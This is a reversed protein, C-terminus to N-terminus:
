GERRDYVCFAFDYAHRDDAQREVRSTERWRRPDLAEFEVDGDVEAQVETLYVRDALRLADRYVAAGGIVFAETEGAAAAVELAEPVGHVVRVGEAAFEPNRSLVLHTRGPLPRGLSAFTRRGMIIHHGMTKRKFDRLDDPLRWPLRGDRGITGNRAVAVILSVRM